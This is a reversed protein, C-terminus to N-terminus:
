SKGRTSAVAWRAVAPLELARLLTARAFHPLTLMRRFRAASQYISRLESLHQSRYDALSKTLPQEGAFFSELSKAALTGSHLALSIGDGTFPDVFGAADGAFFMEKEVPEVTAFILPATSVPETAIRWGESRTRLTAHQAFVQQLNSAVEAKVMACANVRSASVPQVGCYGGEFFYLDVSQPANEEEFHAKVGIWKERQTAHALKLATRPLRSWRGTANIVARAEITFGNALVAFCEGKREATEVVTGDCCKVGSERALNWLAEDMAFRPISAAEPVIPLEVTRGDLYLRSRGIRPADCILSHSAGLLGRLLGLSEPSVFEGCVKHRPFRSQELLIVKAGARASTIAAASGAPGAGLVALDYVRASNVEM